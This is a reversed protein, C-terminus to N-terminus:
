FKFQFSLQAKWADSTDDGQNTRKWTDDDLSMHIYGLELFAALNEYIQYKHDFNVEIASDEDTLYMRDGFFMINNYRNDFDDQNNKVLDADNTGRYYAVRITHSLDEVFTMDAIELGVGWSGIGSLSVVNDTSIGAKAGDFGFSTYGAGWDYGLVPLRGFKMDDIADEDDGSGYWGFLGLTGWDLKYRLAADILWGSSGPTSDAYNDDGGNLHGYMADFAFTLPDFVDLNFAVGAYWANADTGRWNTGAVGTPLASRAPTGDTYEWFGSDAGIAAYVGYPVIRVGDIATIPLTIGFIDTEDMENHNGDSDNADFARLWFATIGIGDVIPTSVTIGAGDNALIPNAGAGGYAWPLHFGQIGMRIKVDTTPIMWDLHARKTEVNVGDADLDGGSGRGSKNGAASDRGWNIDGIEFLLTASLNESAIFDIQTRARHRAAFNDSNKGSNRDGNSIFSAGGKNINSTWGFTFDWQGGVKVDIAQASCVTGLAFVCALALTSLKRM